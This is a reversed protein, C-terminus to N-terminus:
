LHVKIKNKLDLTQLFPETNLFEQQEQLPGLNLGSCRCGTLMCIGTVRAGPFEIGEKQSRYSSSYTHTCLLLIFRLVSKGSFWKPTHTFFKGQQM